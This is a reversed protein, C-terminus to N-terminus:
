PVSLTPEVQRFEIQGISIRRGHSVVLSTLEMGFHSDLSSLCLTVVATKTDQDYLDSLSRSGHRHCISYCVPSHSGQRASRSTLYTAWATRAPVRDACPVGIASNTGLGLSILHLYLLLVLALGDWASM